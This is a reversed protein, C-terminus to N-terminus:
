QQLHLGGLTVFYLAIECFKLLSEPRFSDPLLLLALQYMGLLVCVVIVVFSVLGSDIQEISTRMLDLFYRIKPENHRKPIDPRNFNTLPLAARPVVRGDKIVHTVPQRCVPCKIDFLVGLGLATVYYGFCKGLRLLSFAIM